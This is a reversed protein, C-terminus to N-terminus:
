PVRTAHLHLGASLYSKGDITIDPELWLQALSYALVEDPTVVGDHNTDLLKAFPSTGAALEDTLYAAYPTVLPAADEPMPLAFGLVADFVDDARGVKAILPDVRSWVVPAFAGTPDVLITLPVADGGGSNGVEVHQTGDDCPSVAVEWTVDAGLRASALASMPPIDPNGSQIASLLAGYADDNIGDGDLDAGFLGPSAGSEPLDVHDVRYTVPDGCTITGPTAAPQTACAAALAIPTLVLARSM